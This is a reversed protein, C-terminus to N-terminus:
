SGWWSSPTLFMNATGSVAVAEFLTQNGWLRLIMGVAMFGVMAARGAMLSRTGIRLEEIVLRAASSLPPDLTGLASVPLSVMLAKFLWPRFMGAWTGIVLIDCATGPRGFRAGLWDQVSGAGGQRLRGAIYGGTLFSGYRAAYALTGWIGYVYGLIASNMLSRAFMSTTVQTLVLMWLGPARGDLAAGGFFGGITARRPAVWLSALIVLGFLGIVAFTQTTTIQQPFQNRWGSALRM